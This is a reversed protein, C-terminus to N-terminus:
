CCFSSANHSHKLTQAEAGAVTEQAILHCLALLNRLEPFTGAFDKAIPRSIHNVGFRTAGVLIPTIHNVAENTRSGSHANFNGVQELHQNRVALICFDSALNQNRIDNIRKLNRMDASSIEVAREHRDTIIHVNEFVLTIHASDDILTFSDVHVEILLLYTQINLSGNCTTPQLHYQLRLAVERVKQM